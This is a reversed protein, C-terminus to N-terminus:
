LEIQTFLRLNILSNKRRSVTPKQTSPAFTRLAVLHLCSSTYIKLLEVSSSNYKIYSLGKLSHFPKFSKVPIGLVKRPNQLGFIRRFTAIKPCIKDFKPNFLYIETQLACNCIIMRRNIYSFLCYSAILCERSM